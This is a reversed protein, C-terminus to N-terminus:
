GAEREMSLERELSALDRYISAVALVRGSRRYEVLCDRKQISGDIFSEKSLNPRDVPEAADDSLLTVTGAFGERRLMEAAAFGAAGGGM